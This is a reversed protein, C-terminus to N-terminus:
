PVEWLQQKLLFGYHSWLQERADDYAIKKGLAEDFNELSASASKGVFSFGNEVTLLCITVTTGEFQHYEAGRVKSDIIAPSLRPANLGKEQIEQEIQAENM